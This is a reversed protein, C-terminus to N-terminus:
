RKVVVRWVQGFDIGPDAGRGPLLWGREVDLLEERGDRYTIAATPVFDAPIIDLGAISSWPVMAPKGDRFVPLGDTVVRNDPLVIKADPYDRAGGGDGPVIRLDAAEVAGAFLLLILLVGTMGAMNARLCPWEM